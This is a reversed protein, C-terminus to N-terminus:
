PSKRRLVRGARQGFPQGDKVSFQGNVLVHRMGVAPLAPKTLTGQDAFATADFLALDAWAGPALVGRDSLGLRRAPLSTLRRVAEQLTLKGTDRVFHRYFWAAWTFAGHLLCGGLRRDPALATADSGVMCESHDFALHTDEPRYIFALVLVDHVQDIEELLLDYLADFVDRGRREALAAV